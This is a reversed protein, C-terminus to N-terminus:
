DWDALRHNIMDGYELSGDINLSPRGSRNRMLNFSLLKYNLKRLKRLREADDDITEILLRLNVIENKLDLEPPVYGANSLMRYALRLDEPVWTEDDFNLPKGANQLNEFAGELIAKRIREEAIRAIAEVIAINNRLYDASLGHGM